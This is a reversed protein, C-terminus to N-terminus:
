ATVGAKGPRGRKAAAPAAVTDAATVAASQVAAALAAKRPRGPKKVECDTAQVCAAAASTTTPQHSSQEVRAAAAAAAAPVAPASLSMPATDAVVAAKRPKGLKGKKPTGQLSAAANSTSSCQDSGQDAGAAAPAPAAAAAVVKRPRGLKAKMRPVQLSAAATPTSNRQDCRQEAGAAAAAAVVKRPRGLQATTGTTAEASGGAPVAVKRPRGIKRPFPQLSAAAKRTRICHRPGLAAAAADAEASVAAESFRSGKRAAAKLRRALLMKGRAKSRIDQLIAAAKSTSSRQQSRQQAGAAAAVAAPTGAAAAAAAAPAKATAGASQPRGKKPPEGWTWIPVAEQLMNQEIPALKGRWYRTRLRSTYRSILKGRYKEDGEPLRGHEAVFQQLLPIFKLPSGATYAGSSGGSGPAAAATAAATPQTPDLPGPTIAAAAAQAAAALKGLAMNRVMAVYQHSPMGLRKAVEELTVANRNFKVAAGVKQYRGQFGASSGGARSSGSSSGSGARQSRKGSSSTPSSSSSSAMIFDPPPLEVGLGAAHDDQLGYLLTITRQEVPSLTQLLTRMSHQLLGESDDVSDLMTATVSPANSGAAAALRALEAAAAAAEPSGAGPGVPTSYKSFLGATSLVEDQQVDLEQQSDQQQQQQSRMSAQVWAPMQGAAAMLTGVGGSISADHGPAGLMGEGEDLDATTLMNSWATSADAGMRNSKSNTAIAELSLANHQSRTDHLADRATVTTTNFVRAVQTTPHSLAALHSSTTLNFVYAPSPHASPALLPPILSIYCLPPSLQTLCRLDTIDYSCVAHLPTCSNCAPLSPFILFYVGGVLVQVGMCM